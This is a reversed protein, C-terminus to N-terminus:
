FSTNHKKMWEEAYAKDRKEREIKEKLMAITWYYCLVRAHNLTQQVLEEETFFHTYSNRIREGELWLQQKKTLKINQPM